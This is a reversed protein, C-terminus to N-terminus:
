QAIFRVCQSCKWIISLIFRKYWWGQTFDNAAKYSQASQNITISKGCDHAKFLPVAKGPDFASAVATAGVIILCPLGDASAITQGLAGNGYDIKVYPLQAM